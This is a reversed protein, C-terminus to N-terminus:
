KKVAFAEEGLGPLTEPKLDSVAEKKFNWRGSPYLRLKVWKGEANTYTCEKEELIGTGSKPPEKLRGIIKEAEEKTALACTDSESEQALLPFSPQWSIVFAILCLTKTKM